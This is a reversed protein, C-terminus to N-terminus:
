EDKKLMGNIVTLKAHVTGDQNTNCHIRISGAAYKDVIPKMEANAADLNEFYKDLLVERTVM